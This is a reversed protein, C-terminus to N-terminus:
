PTFRLGMTTVTKSPAIKVAAPYLAPVRREAEGVEELFGVVFGVRTTTSAVFHAWPATTAGPFFM